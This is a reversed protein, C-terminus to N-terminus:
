SFVLYNVLNGGNSSCQWRLQITAFIHFIYDVFFIISSFRIGGKFTTSVSGYQSYITRCDELDVKVCQKGDGEYGNNCKCSYGVMKDTCVANASCGHTEEFCENVLNEKKVELLARHKSDCKVDDWKLNYNYWATM